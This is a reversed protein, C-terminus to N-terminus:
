TLAVPETDNIKLAAIVCKVLGISFCQELYHM